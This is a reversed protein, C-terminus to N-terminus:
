LKPDFWTCKLAALNVLNVHLLGAM